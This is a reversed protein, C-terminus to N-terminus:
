QLRRPSVQSKFNFETNGSSFTLDIEIRTIDTLASGGNDYYYTFSLSDVNDALENTTGDVTRRLTTGSTDFTITNGGINNFTLTGGAATSISAAERTERIMRDMAIRASESMEKRHSQLVWADGVQLMLAVGVVAIIGLIVIVIVLEILTFGRKRVDLISFRADLM